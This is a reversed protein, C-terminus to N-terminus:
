IGRVTGTFGASNWGLKKEGTKSLFFSPASISSEGFSPLPISRTEESSPTYQNRRPHPPLFLPRIRRGDM